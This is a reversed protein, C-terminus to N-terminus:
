EAAPSHGPEGAPEGRRFLLRGLSWTGDGRAAMYLFLWAYLAALEGGNEIPWFGQPFHAKFYAVAMMGSALFAAWGTFLGLLILAGGGLEIIGAVKILPPLEGFGKGGFLGFVKGAGHFAFLLGAVIRLLAYAHPSFRGLWRDM